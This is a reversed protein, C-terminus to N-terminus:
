KQHNFSYWDVEFELALGDTDIKVFQKPMQSSMFSWSLLPFTQFYRETEDAERKQQQAIETETQRNLNM